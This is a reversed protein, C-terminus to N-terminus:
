YGQNQTMNKNIDIEKQPIAWLYCKTVDFHRPTITKFITTQNVYIPHGYQNFTPIGQNFWYAKNKRGPLPGELVNEAIKWRRIDFLRLGEGAFVIKREWRLVQRFQDQTIGSPVDPMQVRRRILNIADYVSQDIQNLEIKAEAYTLLIEAYRILMLPMDSGNSPSNFATEDYNKRFLYGTFSAYANTVEQNTIKVLNGNPSDIGNVNKMTTLSDPNTEYKVGGFWSGPVLISAKLRPDRNEYPNAPDFLPSESINKGDTCLYSDVLYQTPCIISWGQGYRTGMVVASMNKNTIINFNMQFISEKSNKGAQQFLAGYDSSLQYVKLDMVTKASTAAVDYQGNYLAVRAKLALAAGMTIRGIDNGTWATPLKSIAFDLDVMIQKVVDAKVSRAVNSQDLTLMSTVVLPVDGYLQTLYNYNWARLFRAQGEIRDCFTADLTKRATVINDLIFNCRQITMYFQSWAGSFVGETPTAIGLNIADSIAYGGRSFVLDTAADWYLEGQAYTGPNYNLSNYAGTLAYSLENETKCFTASTPADLPYKELFDQCSTLIFLLTGFIVINLKM